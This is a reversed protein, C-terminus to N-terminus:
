DVAGLVAQGRAGGRVVTERLDVGATGAGQRTRVGAPGLLHREVEVHDGGGAGVAVDEEDLRVLRRDAAEAGPDVGGYAETGLVDGVAVAARLRLDGAGGVEAMEVM